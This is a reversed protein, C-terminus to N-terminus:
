KPYKEDEYFPVNRVFKKKPEDDVDEGFYVISELNPLVRKQAAVAALWQNLSPLFDRTAFTVMIPDEIQQTPNKLTTPVFTEKSEKNGVFRPILQNSQTLIKLIRRALKLCQAVVGISEIRILHPCLSSRRMSNMM